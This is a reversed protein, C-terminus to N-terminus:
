RCGMKRARSKREYHDTVWTGRDYATARCFLLLVAEVLRKTALLGLMNEGTVPVLAQAKNDPTGGADASSAGIATALTDQGHQSCEIHIGSIRPASGELRRRHTLSGALATAEGRSLVM